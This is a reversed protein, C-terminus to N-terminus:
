FGTGREEALAEALADREAELEEVVEALQDREAALEWVLRVLEDPTAALVQERTPRRSASARIRETM